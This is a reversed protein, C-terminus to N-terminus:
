LSLAKKLVLFGFVISFLWITHGSLEVADETTMAVLGLEEQTVASLEGICSLVGDANAVWDGDCLIFKM